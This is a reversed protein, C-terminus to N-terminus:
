VAEETHSAVPLLRDREPERDRGVVHLTENIIGLVAGPSLSPNLGCAEPAPTLDLPAPEVEERGVARRVEAEHPVPQVEGVSRALGAGEDALLVDPVARGAMVPRVGRRQM